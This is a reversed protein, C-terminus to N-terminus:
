KGYDPKLYLRVIDIFEQAGVDEARDFQIEKKEADYFMIALPRRKEGVHVAVTGTAQHQKSTRAMVQVEIGKESGRQKEDSIM